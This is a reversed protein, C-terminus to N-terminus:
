KNNIIDNIKEIDGDKVADKGAEYDRKIERNKFFNKIYFIFDRSFRLTNYLLSLLASITNLM